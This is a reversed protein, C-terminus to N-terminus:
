SAARTPSLLRALSRRCHRGPRARRFGLRIYRRREAIGRPRRHHDDAFLRMIRSFARRPFFLHRVITWAAIAVGHQRASTAAGLRARARGTPSGGHASLFATPHVAARWARARGAAVPIRQPMASGRALSDLFTALQPGQQPLRAPQHLLDFSGATSPFPRRKTPPAPAGSRRKVTSRKMLPEASAAPTSRLDNLTKGALRIRMPPAGSGLVPPTPGGRIMCTPPHFHRAAPWRRGPTAGAAPM